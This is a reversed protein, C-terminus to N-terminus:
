RRYYQLESTSIPDYRLRIGSGELQWLFIHQHPQKDEQQAPGYRETVLLLLQEKSLSHPNFNFIVEVVQEEGDFVVRCNAAEPLVAQLSYVDSGTRRYLREGGAQTIVQYIQDRDVEDLYVGFVKARTEQQAWGPLALLTLAVALWFRRLTM